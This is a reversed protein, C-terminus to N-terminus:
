IFINLEEELKTKNIRIPSEQIAIEVAKQYTFDNDMLQLVKRCENTKARTKLYQLAYDYEVYEINDPNFGRQGSEYNKILREKTIGEKLEDNVLQEIKLQYEKDLICILDHTNGKEWENFGELWDTEDYAAWSDSRDSNVIELIQAISCKKITGCFTDKIIVITQNVTSM